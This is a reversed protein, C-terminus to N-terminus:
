HKNYPTIKIGEKWISVINEIDYINSTPDGKVLVFNAFSKERIFGKSGLSFQQSPNSTASKLADIPSLGNEVLLILEQFLDTGYNIGLNPPDTGALLPIGAQHLRNMDEKLLEMQPAGWKEICPQCESFKQLTLLTPVIFLQSNKLTTLDQDSIPTTGRDWMHVIGDGGMSAIKVADSRSSIHSVSLMEEEKATRIALAIMDDDLTPIPTEKSGREVILKIYDSGEAVRERIFQPVAEATQILPVPGFQSGHGGPVTVTPGASYYYAHHSSSDGLQRLSDINSRRNFMDLLTLVGAEVAEKLHDPDYAHVHANILGPILCLGDGDIIHQGEFETVQNTIIKEVKDENIFITAKEFVQDGDFLKVNQIILDYKNADNENTCSGILVINLIIFGFKKM